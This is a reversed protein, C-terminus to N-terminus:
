RTEVLAFVQTRATPLDPHTPHFALGDPGFERVRQFRDTDPFGAAVIADHIGDLIVRRWAPPRGALLSVTVMAM